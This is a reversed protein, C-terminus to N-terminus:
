PRWTLFGELLKLGFAQSKEPHFQFGLVLDRGIVAPFAGGYDTHALIDNTDAAVYAYSHVFYAHRDTMERARDLAPHPRDFVVENWGMHPIKLAPDTPALAKVEGPILKLGDTVGHEYGIDALLQMGVCIGLFPKEGAAARLPETLGREDLGAKCSAFAGVGPLLLRDARAIDEPDGSVRVNVSPAAERAARAVAKEASRLNGSGYDIILLTEAM